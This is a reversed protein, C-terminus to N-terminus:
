AAAVRRRARATDRTNSNIEKLPENLMQASNVTVANNETRLRTVEARLAVGESRLEKLEAVVEAWAGNDNSAGYPV